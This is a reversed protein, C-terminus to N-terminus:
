SACRTPRASGTRPPSPTPRSTRSASRSPARSSTSAAVGRGARPGRHAAPRAGQGLPRQRGHRRRRAPACTARSRRRAARRSPHPDPPRVSTAERHLGQGDRAPEASSTRMSRLGRELHWQLYAAVLGSGERRHRPESADASRGTAPSCRRWCPSVTEPAPAAAARAAPLGRVARRRGRSSSAPAARRRRLAACDTSAPAYGAVSLSRLLYADLVLGAPHEGAALTRLGGVLLLFQQVAPESDEARGAARRDGADGHRRHLARLRRWRAATRASRRPRPSSTSSAARRALQVDVHTFPELRPGSSRRRAGCARPRGRPGARARTLLTIIRDAEGLKQTRLVVAEDRYLRVRAMRGQAVPGATRPQAPPACCEVAFDGAATTLREPRFRWELISSARTSAARRAHESRSCTPTSSRTRDPRGPAGVILTPAAIRRRQARRRRWGASSSATCARAACRHRRQQDCPTSRSARGLVARTRAAGGGHDAQARRRRHRARLACRLLLPASRSSGPRSRANDLGADRAVLGGRGAGARLPGRDGARRQRGAVYRRVVARARRRPPRAAGVVQEAFAGVDLLGAPRGAPRSSPRAGLLDLTVM